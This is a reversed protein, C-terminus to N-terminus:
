LLILKNNPSPSYSLLLHAEGEKVSNYTHFSHQLLCPQSIIIVFIILWKIQTETSKASCLQKFVLMKFSLLSCILSFWMLYFWIKPKQHSPFGFYQPFFRESCLSFFLFSLEHIANLVSDFGPWKPPLRTSEGRCM